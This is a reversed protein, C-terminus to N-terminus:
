DHVDVVVADAVIAAAAAAFKPQSISLKHCLIFRNPSARESAIHRGTGNAEVVRDIPGRESVRGNM